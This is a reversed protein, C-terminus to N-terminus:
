KSPAQGAQGAQPEPENFHIMEIDKVSVLVYAGDARPKSVAPATATGSSAATRLVTQDSKKVRLITAERTKEPTQKEITGTVQQGSRLWIIVDRDKIEVKDDNGRLATIWDSERMRWIRRRSSPKEEPPPGGNKVQIGGAPKKLKDEERIREREKIEDILIPGALRGAAALGGLALLAAILSGVSGLNAQVQAALGQRDTSTLLQRLLVRTDEPVTPTEGLVVGGTVLEHQSELTSELKPDSELYHPIVVLSVKENNTTAMHAALALGVAVDSPNGPEIAAAFVVVPALTDRVRVHPLRLRQNPVKLTSVGNINGLDANTPCSDKKSNPTESTTFTIVPLPKNGPSVSEWATIRKAVLQQREANGDIFLLPADHNVAYWAAAFMTAANTSETEVVCPPPTLWFRSAELSTEVRTVGGVRTFAAAVPSGDWVGWLLYVGVACVSLAVVVGAWNLFNPKRIVRWLLYVGAACLGLLAVVVAWRPAGRLSYIGFACAGLAVVIGVAIAVRILFKRRRIVDWHSYIGYIGDACVGLVVLVAVAVVAWMGAGQLFYIGVACEGLVVGVAVCTLFISKHAVARLAHLVRLM